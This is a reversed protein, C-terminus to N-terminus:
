DPPPSLDWPPPYGTGEQSDGLALLDWRDRPETKVRLDLGAKRVGIAEPDVSVKRHSGGGSPDNPDEPPGGAGSGYGTGTGKWRYYKAKVTSGQSSSTVSETEKDTDEGEEEEGEEDDPKDPPLDGGGPPPPGDEVGPVMERVSHPYLSGIIGLRAQRAVKSTKQM